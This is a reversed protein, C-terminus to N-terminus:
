SKEDKHGTFFACCNEKAKYYAIWIEDSAGSPPTEIEIFKCDDFFGDNNNPYKHKIWKWLIIAVAIIAIVLVDAYTTMTQENRKSLM